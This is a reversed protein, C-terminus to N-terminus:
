EPMHEHDLYSLHGRVQPLEMLADGRRGRPRHSVVFGDVLGAARILATAIGRRRWRGGKVYVYHLTPANFCAFGRFLDEAGDEVAVLCGGALLRSILKHHEGYYTSAERPVREGYYRPRQHEWSKLWANYVWGRADPHAQDLPVIKIM